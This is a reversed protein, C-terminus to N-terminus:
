VDKLFFHLANNVIDNPVKKEKDAFILGVTDNKQRLEKEYPTENKVVNDFYKVVDDYVSYPITVVRRSGHSKGYPVIVYVNKDLERVSQNVHIEVDEKDVIVFNDITLAFAEEQRLGSSMILDVLIRYRDNDKLLVKVEALQVRDLFRSDSVAKELYNLELPEM